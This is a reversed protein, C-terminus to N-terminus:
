YSRFLGDDMWYLVYTILSIGERLTICTFGYKIYQEDYKWRKSAGLGKTKAILARQTSPGPSTSPKGDTQHLCVPETQFEEEKKDTPKVM